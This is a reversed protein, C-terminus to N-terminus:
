AYEVVVDLPFCALAQELVDKPNTFRSDYTVLFNLLEDGYVRTWPISSWNELYVVRNESM